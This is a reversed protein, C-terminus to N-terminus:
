QSSADFVGKFTKVKNLVTRVMSEDISSPVNLYYVIIPMEQGIRDVRGIAQQIDAPVYSVEIFVVIHGATLTVGVGGAVINALYFDSVGNQFNDVALQRDVASTAGTVVQPKYDKLLDAVKAIVDKHIAFAVVPIGQDLLSQIFEAAAEAKAVGQLRACEALTKPLPPIPRGELLAAEIMRQEDHAQEKKKKPLAIALEPSLDITQYTKKPLDKLVDEKKYRIYFNSRIIASLEQANKLGYYQVGFPTKRSYSYHAAFEFFNKFTPEFPLIRSFASYTQVVNSRMPTASMLIHYPARKWYPGLFAKTQRTKYSAFAHAEDYLICDFDLDTVLTVIDDRSGLSYSLIIWQYSHLERTKYLEEIEKGTDLVKVRPVTTISTRAWRLIESEWNYKVISPCVVLIRSHVPNPLSMASIISVPTKGTGVESANYVSGIRTLHTLCKQVAERQFPYLELGVPTKINFPTDTNQAPQNLTM